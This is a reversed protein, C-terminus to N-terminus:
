SNILDDFDRLVQILASAPEHSRFFEEAMPSIHSQQPLGGSQELIVKMQPLFLFQLWENFAMVDVAFPQQSLMKEPEIPLASWLDLLRLQREVELLCDAIQSQRETM